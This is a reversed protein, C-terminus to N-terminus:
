RKKCRTIVDCFISGVVSIIRIAKIMIFLSDPYQAIDVHHGWLKKLACVLCFFHVSTRFQQLIACLYQIPHYGTCQASVGIQYQYSAVQCLFAIQCAMLMHHTFQILETTRTYFHRHYWAVVVYVIGGVRCRRLLKSLQILVQAIM